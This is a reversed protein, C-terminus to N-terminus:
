SIKTSKRLLHQSEAVKESQPIYAPFCSSLVIESVSRNLECVHNLVSARSLQVSFTQGFLM